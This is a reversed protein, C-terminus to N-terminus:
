AARTRRNHTYLSWTCRLRYTYEGHEPFRARVFLEGQGFYWGVVHVKRIRAFEVDIANPFPRRVIVPGSWIADVTRYLFGHVEGRRTFFKKKM